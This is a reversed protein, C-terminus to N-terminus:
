LFVDRTKEPSSALLKRSQRYGWLLPPGVLDAVENMREYRALDRDLDPYGGLVEEFTEKAADYLKLDLENEARVAEIVSAPHDEVAPRTRNVNSSIYVPPRSWGLQKQFLLLSEDFHETLGFVSFKERLHHKARHLARRPSNDPDIGSLFRVQDNAKAARHDSHLFEVLSNSAAESDPWGSKIYYYMSVVRRVPHRLMTFYRCAEPIQKHTGYVAHGTILNYGSLKGSSVEEFWRDPSEARGVPIHYCVSPGYVWRLTTNLTTGGTKRIHIFIDTM